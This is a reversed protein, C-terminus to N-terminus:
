GTRRRGTAPDLLPVRDLGRRRRESTSREEGTDGATEGTGRQQGVADDRGDLGTRAEELRQRRL